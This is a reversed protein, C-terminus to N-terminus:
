FPKLALLLLVDFISVGLDMHAVQHCHLLFFDAETLQGDFCIKITVNNGQMELTDRWYPKPVPIQNIHTVLFPGQHSHFAHGPFPESTVIWEECTGAVVSGSRYHPTALRNNMGFAVGPPVFTGNYPIQFLPFETAIQMRVIRKGVITQNEMDKLVKAVPPITTPLSMDSTGETVIFTTIPAPIDHSVCVEVPIGFSANCAEIGRIGGFTWADRQLQYIGPQTFKMMFEVRSGAPISVNSTPTLQPMPIGDESLVWFAPESINDGVWSLVITPEVSASVARILLSQGTQCEYTMTEALIGNVVSKWNFEVIHMENNSTLLNIQNTISLRLCFIDFM